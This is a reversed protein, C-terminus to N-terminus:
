IMYLFASKEDIVYYDYQTSWFKLYDGDIKDKMDSDNEDYKKTFKELATESDYGLIEVAVRDSITLRREVKSKVIVKEKTKSIALIVDGIKIRDGWMIKRKM